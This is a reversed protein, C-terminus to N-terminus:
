NRKMWKERKYLTLTGYSMIKLINWCTLSLLIRVRWLRCIIEVM